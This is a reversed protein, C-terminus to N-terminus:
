KAGSLAYWSGCSFSVLHMSVDICYLESDAISAHLDSNMSAYVEYFDSYMYTSSMDIKLSFDYLILYWVYCLWMIKQMSFSSELGIKFCSSM